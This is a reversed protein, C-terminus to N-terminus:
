KKALRLAMMEEGNRVLLTDGIVVPHNWTKASLAPAKSIERYEDPTASVVALEGDESIVLLADQDPLLVLQGAGYRGGKWKRKGDALDICALITGDFGYAHGKHIVFDNFYPKLGNSTWRETVTWTSGSQSLALRRLGVGGTSVVGSILVDGDPLLAPQVITAGGETWEHEWLVAGTDPAVSTIGDGSEMLIQTVGGIVARHPSSYSGRHKPGFWKPQGSNIDYAALSGSAAVIVVDGIVLPSASFGWTPIETKTDEGANRSWISKGTRADIANLIGTAGLAYVRGGALTPTGRPGAGANSEWFRVNTRHQWVPAGTSLRYCSVLEHEGRQEQTYIFDGGVAFSSWGPGVARKWIVTPPADKWDLAIRVGDIVGDRDPGRFGPWAAPGDVPADAAAPANAAVPAATPGPAGSAGSAGPAGPAGPAGAAGPAGSPSPGEAALLIQEATPTWRWHFEAGTGRVGDTRILTFSGAAAFIIVIMAMRRAGGSLRQAIVAWAVLALALVPIAYVFLMYGMMGGRISIHVIRYIAVVALVMVVVAGIRESWPARSFFLWWGIIVLSLILGGFLGVLAADPVIPPLVYRLAVLLLAAVVGPWLRIPKM